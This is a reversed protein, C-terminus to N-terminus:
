TKNTRSALIGCRSHSKVEPIPRSRCPTVGSWYSSCPKCSTTATRAVDRVIKNFIWLCANLYLLDTAKPNEPINITSRFIIVADDVIMDAQGKLKIDELDYEGLKAGYNMKQLFGSLLENFGTKEQEIPDTREFYSRRLCGVVEESHIIKIDNVDFKIKLEKSISNIATKILVRYDRDGMM